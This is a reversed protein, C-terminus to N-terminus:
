EDIRGSIISRGGRKEMTSQETDTDATDTPDVADEADTGPHLRIGSVMELAEARIAEIKQTIGIYERQSQQDASAVELWGEDLYQMIVSMPVQTHEHVELATIGPFAKVVARVEWFRADEVRKCQPCSTPPMGEYTYMQKCRPCRITRM